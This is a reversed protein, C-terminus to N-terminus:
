PTATLWDEPLGIAICTRSTPDLWRLIAALDEAAFAICGATPRGPGSWRHVFIASGHGPVVPDTNYEVVLGQRYLDDQRRMVEFSTAKTSGSAVLRNYDPSTPDDVWLDNETVQRYPWALGPNPDYGFATGLRYVGAPTCGDGERKSGVPAVGSRGITAPRAPGNVAWDGGRDELLWVQATVSGTGDPIVWLCQTASAAALREQLPAPVVGDPLERAAPLTAPWALVLCWLAIMPFIRDSTIM